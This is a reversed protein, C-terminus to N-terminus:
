VRCDIKRHEDFRHLVAYQDYLFLYVGEADVCTSDGIWVFSGADFLRYPYAHKILSSQVVDLTMLPKINM